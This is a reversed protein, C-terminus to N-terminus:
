LIRECGMKEILAKILGALPVCNGAPLLSASNFLNGSQM